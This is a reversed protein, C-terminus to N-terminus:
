CPFRHRVPTNTKGSRGVFVEECIASPCASYAGSSADGVGNTSSSPDTWSMSVKSIAGRPRRAMRTASRTCSRWGGLGRLGRSGCWKGTSQWCTQGQAVGLWRPLGTRREPLASQRSRSHRAAVGVADPVADRVEETPPALSVLTRRPTGVRYDRVPDALHQRRAGATRTRPAAVM